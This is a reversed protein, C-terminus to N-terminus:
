LAKERWARAVELLAAMRTAGCESICAADPARGPRAEVRFASPDDADQPSFIRLCLEGGNSDLEYAMALGARYQILIRTSEKPDSNKRERTSLTNSRSRPARASLRAHRQLARFLHDARWAGRSSGADTHVTVRGSGSLPAVRAGSTSERCDGQGISM